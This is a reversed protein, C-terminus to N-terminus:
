PTTSKATGIIWATRKCDKKKQKACRLRLENNKVYTVLDEHCFPCQGKMIIDVQGRTYQVAELIKMSTEHLADLKETVQGPEVILIPLRERFVRDVIHRYREDQAMIALIKQLSELVEQLLAAIERESM